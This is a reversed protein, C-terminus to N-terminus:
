ERNGTGLLGYPKQPRSVDDFLFDPGYFDILGETDMDMSQYRLLVRESYEQMTVSGILVSCMAVRTALWVVTISIPTLTSDQKSKMLEPSLPNTGLSRM